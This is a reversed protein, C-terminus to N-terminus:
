FSFYIDQKELCLSEENSGTKLLNTGDGNMVYIEDNNERDSNFTIKMTALVDQANAETHQVGRSLLLTLSVVFVWVIRSQKLTRQLPRNSM